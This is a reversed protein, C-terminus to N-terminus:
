VRFGLGSVRLGLGKNRVRTVKLFGWAVVGDIRLGFLRLGLNQVRM